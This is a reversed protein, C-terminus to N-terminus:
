KIVLEFRDLIKTYLVIKEIRSIDSFSLHESRLLEGFACCVGTDKLTDMVNQGSLEAMLPYLKEHRLYPTNEISLKETSIPEVSIGHYRIEVKDRNFDIIAEVQCLNGFVRNYLMINLGSIFRDAFNDSLKGFLSPIVPEVTGIIRVQNGAFLEKKIDNKINEIHKNMEDILKIIAEELKANFSLLLGCNDANFSFSSDLKEKRFRLFNDDFRSIRRPINRNAYLLDMEEATFDELINRCDEFPMKRLQALTYGKVAPSKM